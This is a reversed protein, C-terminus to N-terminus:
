ISFPPWWFDDQYLTDFDFNISYKVGTLLIESGDDMEILLSSPGGARYAKVELFSTDINIKDVGVAFDVITDRSGPASKTFHFVDAGTGGFLMDSDHNGYIQDDGAGGYITDAGRDGQLHDSGNGGFIKDANSGGHITDNHVDGYLSDSSGGGTIIDNGDGGRVTDSGSSSFIMDDGSGGYVVDLGGLTSIFDNENGGYITDDGLGTMILDRGNESLVTISQNDSVIYDSQNGRGTTSVKDYDLPAFTAFDFENPPPEYGIGQGAHSNLFERLHLEFQAKAFSIRDADDKGLGSYSGRIIDDFSDVETLIVNTLRVTRGMLDFGNGTGLNDLAGTGHAKDKIGFAHLLEHAIIHHMSFNAIEGNLGLYKKQTDGPNLYIYPQFGKIGFTMKYQSDRETTFEFNLDASRIKSIYGAAFKSFTDSECLTTVTEKIENIQTANMKKFSFTSILDNALAMDTERTSTLVMTRLLQKRALLPSRGRTFHHAHVLLRPLSVSATAM